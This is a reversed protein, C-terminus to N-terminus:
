ENESIPVNVWENLDYDYEWYFVEDGDRTRVWYAPGSAEPIVGEYPVFEINNSDLYEQLLWYERIESVLFVTAITLVVAIVLIALRKRTWLGKRAAAPGIVDLFEAAVDDPTGFHAHLALIDTGAHDECYLFVEDELQRLFGAKLSRQCPIKSRIQRLYAKAASSM